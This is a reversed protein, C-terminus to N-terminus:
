QQALQLDAELVVLQNDRLNRLKRHSRVFAGPAFASADVVTDWDHVLKEFVSGRM